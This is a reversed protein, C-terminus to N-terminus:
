ENLCKVPCALYEVAPWYSCEIPCAAHVYSQDTRYGTVDGVPTAERKLRKKEVDRSMIMIVQKKRIERGSSM